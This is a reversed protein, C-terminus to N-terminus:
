YKLVVNVFLKDENRLRRQYMPSYGSLLSGSSVAFTLPSSPHAEIGRPCGQELEGDLFRFRDGHWSRGGHVM